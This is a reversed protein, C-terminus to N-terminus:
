SLNCGFDQQSLLISSKQVICIKKMYWMKRYLLSHIVEYTEWWVTLLVMYFIFFIFIGVKSLKLAGKNDNRFLRTEHLSRMELSWWLLTCVVPLDKKMNLLWVIKALKSPKQCLAYMYMISNRFVMLPITKQENYKSSLINTLFSHIICSKSMVIFYM